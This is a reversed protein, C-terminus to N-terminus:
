LIEGKRLTQLMSKKSEMPLISMLTKDSEKLMWDIDHAMAIHMGFTDEAMKLRKVTQKAAPIDAQLCASSGDPLSWVAFDYEGNM